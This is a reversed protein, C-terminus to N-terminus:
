PASDVRSKSPGIPVLSVSPSSPTFGSAPNSNMSNRLYLWGQQPALLPDQASSWAQLTDPLRVYAINLKPNRVNLSLATNKWRDSWTFTTDSGPDLAWQIRSQDLILVGNVDFPAVAWGLTQAKVYSFLSDKRSTDGIATSGTYQEDPLRPFLRWVSVRLSDPDLTGLSGASPVWLSDPRLAVSDRAWTKGLNANDGIVTDQLTAIDLHDPILGGFGLIPWPMNVTDWVVGRTRASTILRPRFRLNHNSHNVVDSTDLYIHHPYDAVFDLESLTEGYANVPYVRHESDSVPRFWYGIQGEKYGGFTSQGDITRSGSNVDWPYKDLWSTTDPAYLPVRVSTVATDSLYFWPNLWNLRPPVTYGEQPNMNYEYPLTELTDDNYDPKNFEYRLDNTCCYSSNYKLYWVGEGPRLKYLSLANIRASDAPIVRDYGVKTTISDRFQEICKHFRIDCNGNLRMTTGRKIAYLETGISDGTPQRYGPAYVYFTQNWDLPAEYWWSDDLVGVHPRTLHFYASINDGTNWTMLSTSDRLMDAYEQFSVLEKPVPANALHMNLYVTALTSDTCAQPAIVIAGDPNTSDWEGWTIKTTDVGTFAECSFSWPGPVSDRFPTPCKLWEPHQATLRSMYLNSLRTDWSGPNPDSVVGNGNDDLHPDKCYQFSSSDLVKQFRDNALTFLASLPDGEHYGSYGTNTNFFDNSALNSDLFKSNVGSGILTKPNFSYIRNDREIGFAETDLESQYRPAIGVRTYRDISGSNPSVVNMTSRVGMGTNGSDAMMWFPSQSVSRTLIHNAHRVHAGTITWQIYWGLSEWNGTYNQFGAISNYYKAWQMEYDVQKYRRATQSGSPRIEFVADREPFYLLNGDLRARLKYDSILDAVRLSDMNKGQVFLGPAAVQRAKMDTITVTDRDIETWSTGSKRELSVRLTGNSIGALPSQVPDFWLRNLLDQGQWDGEWSSATQPGLVALINGSDNPGRIVLRTTDTRPLSVKGQLQIPTGLIRAMSLDVHNPSVSLFSSTWVLPSAVVTFPAEVVWEGDLNRSTVRLLYTGSALANGDSGYGGFNVTSDNLPTGQWVRQASSGLTTNWVSVTNTLGVAGHLRWRLTDNLTSTDSRDLVSTGPSLLQLSLASNTMGSRDLTFTLSSTQIVSGKGVWLVLTYVTDRLNKPDLLVLDQDVGLRLAQGVSGPIGSLDQPIKGASAVASAEVVPLLQPSPLATLTNWSAVAPAAVTGPHLSVRYVATGTDKPSPDPAIGRVVIFGGKAKLIMSASPYTIRPSVAGVFQVASASSTLGGESVTVAWLWSGAIRAKSTVPINAAGVGKNNLLVVVPTANVSDPGKIKVTDTANATGSLDVHLSATIPLNAAVQIPTVSARVSPGSWRVRITGTVGSIFTASSDTFNGAADVLTWKSDYDGEPLRTGDALQGTFTWKHGSSVLSARTVSTTYSVGNQLFRVVLTVPRTTDNNDIATTLDATWASTPSV